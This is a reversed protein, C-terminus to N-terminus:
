GEKTQNVLRLTVRKLDRDVSMVEVRLSAGIKIRENEGEKLHVLESRHLLAEFGDIVEVFVGYNMTNKVKGNM